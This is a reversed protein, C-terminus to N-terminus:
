QDVFYTVLACASRRTDVLGTVDTALCNWSDNICMFTAFSDNQYYFQLESSLVTTKKGSDAKSRGPSDNEVRLAAACVSTRSALVLRPWGTIMIKGSSGVM